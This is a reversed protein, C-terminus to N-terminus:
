SVTLMSLISNKLFEFLKKKKWWFTPTAQYKVGKKLELRLVYSSLTTRTVSSHKSNANLKYFETFIIKKQMKKGIEKTCRSKCNTTCDIKPIIKKAAVPKGNSNTYQLGLQHKRKSVKWDTKNIPRNREHGRIKCCKWCSIKHFSRIRRSNKIWDFTEWSKM